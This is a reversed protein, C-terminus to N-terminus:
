QKRCRRRIGSELTEKLAAAGVDIYVFKYAADVLGLLVIRYFTKYNFHLSGSNRPKKISVHKGDLAETCNQFQWRCQFDKKVKLWGVVM